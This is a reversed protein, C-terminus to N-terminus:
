ATYTYGARSSWIFVPENTQVSSANQPHNAHTVQDSVDYTYKVICWGVASDATGPSAWGHYILNGSDYEYRHIFNVDEMMFFEGVRVLAM